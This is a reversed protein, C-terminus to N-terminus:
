GEMFEKAKARYQEALTTEKYSDLVMAVILNLVAYEMRPAIKVEGEVLAPYPLYEIDFDLEDVDSILTTYYRMRPLHDGDWKKLLVLTPEDYTGRIYRNLQMRGEASNEAVMETLVVDSDKCKLSLIRATPTKMTLTVVRDQLEMTYDTGKAASEGELSIVPALSHIKHVAEVIHGEVLKHLDLADPDVLLGISEASTLEDIARRVYAFAANVTLSYM